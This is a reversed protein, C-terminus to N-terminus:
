KGPKLRCFYMMGTTNTTNKYKIGDWFRLNNEHPSVAWFVIVIIKKM